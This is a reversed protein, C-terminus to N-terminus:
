TCYLYILRDGPLEQYRSEIETLPLSIAGAAHAAQFSGASRVDVILATGNDSAAKAEQVSAREVEPYPGKAEIQQDPATAQSQATTRSANLWLAIMVLVVGGLIILIPNLQFQSKKKRTM